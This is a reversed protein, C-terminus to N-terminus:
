VEIAALRKAAYRPYPLLLLVFAAAPVLGFWLAFAGTGMGTTFALYGGGGALGMAGFIAIVANPNQKMAAIPNDWRLRPNATDLWLGGLNLLASMALSAGLAAAGDVFSLRVAYAVLGVGMASGLTAFVLGHVLKALMYRGASLPLSKLYPLAKADRSLSTCTISTASGLFVGSLAAIIAGGGGQLMALVGAMDPDSLFADRQTAVMIGLIVPMLVIIFPGNLMYMPERNMMRLERAVLSLFAPRRVLKARLFADAGSGLKKIHSENFGVLSKAYRGSLGLIVLAPGALCVAALGLLSLIAALSAPESLARWTLYAPPYAQGLKTLLADPEAMNAAIWAPDQLRGLMTQYYINFGVAMVLGIVGGVVLIAQKNKLFRAFGMLPIQILYSIALAPLPLLLAAMLGWVYFLPHPAEKIGFIVLATAVFFVSIAAESVYIAAFKAAFLQRPKIPMALFQLEMDNMFYTSLATLFGIALTLITAIVAVNLLVIGQLGLPALAEYTALNSAGFLFGMQGVVLIVLLGIGLVKLAAKPEFKTGKAAKGPLNYFSKLYLGTLSLFVKM